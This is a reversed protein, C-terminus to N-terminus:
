SKLSQGEAAHSRNHAFSAFRAFAGHLKQKLVVQIRRLIQLPRQIFEPIRLAGGGDGLFFARRMPSLLDLQRRGGGLLGLRPQEGLREDAAHELMAVRNVLV